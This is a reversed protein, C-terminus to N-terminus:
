EERQGGRVFAESTFRTGLSFGQIFCEENEMVTLETHLQQLERLLKKCEENELKRIKEELGECEKLVVRYPEQKPCCLERPMLGQYFFQSLTNKGM